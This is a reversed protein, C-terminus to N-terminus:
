EDGHPIKELWIEIKWGLIRSLKPIIASSVLDIQNKIYNVVCAKQYFFIEIFSIGAVCFIPSDYDKNKGKEM